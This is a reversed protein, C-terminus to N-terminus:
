YHRVDLCFRKHDGYVIFAQRLKTPMKTNPEGFLFNGIGGPYNGQDDPKGFFTEDLKASKLIKVATRPIVTELMEGAFVNRYVTENAPMWRNNKDLSADYRVPKSDIILRSEMEPVVIVRGPNNEQAADKYANQFNLGNNGLVIAGLLSLKNGSLIQLTEAVKAYENTITPVFRLQGIKLNLFPLGNAPGNGTTLTLVLSTGNIKTGKMAKVIDEQAMQASTELFELQKLWAVRTENIAGTRDEPVANMLAKLEEIARNLKNLEETAQKLYEQKATINQSLAKLVDQQAKTAKRVARSVDPRTAPRTRVQPKLSSQLAKESEQKSQTGPQAFVTIDTFLVSNTLSSFMFETTPIEQQPLALIIKAYM